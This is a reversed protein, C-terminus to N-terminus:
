FTLIVFTKVVGVSLNRVSSVVTITVTAPHGTGLKEQKKLRNM